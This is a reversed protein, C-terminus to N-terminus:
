EQPASATNFKVITAGTVSGIRASTPVYLKVEREVV